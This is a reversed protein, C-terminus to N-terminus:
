GGNGPIRYGASNGSRGDPVLKTIAVLDSLVRGATRVALGAEAALGRRTVRGDREAIALAARARADLDEEPGRRRYRTAKGEGM